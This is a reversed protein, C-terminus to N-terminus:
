SSRAVDAGGLAYRQKYHYLLDDALQKMEDSSHLGSAMFSSEMFSFLFLGLYWNLASRRLHWLGQM